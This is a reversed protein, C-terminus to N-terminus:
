GIAFNALTPLEQTWENAMPYRSTGDRRALIPFAWRNGVLRHRTEGGVTQLQLNAAHELLVLREKGDGFDLVPQPLFLLIGLIVFNQKV